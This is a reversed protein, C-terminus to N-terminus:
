SKRQASQIGLSVAKQGGFGRIPFVSPNKGLVETCPTMSVKHPLPTLPGKRKTIAPNDTQRGLTQVAIHLKITTDRHSRQARPTAEVKPININLGDDAKSMESM